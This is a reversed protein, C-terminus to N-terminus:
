VFPGSPERVFFVVIDLKIKWQNVLNNYIQTHAIRAYRPRLKGILALKGAHQRCRRRKSFVVYYKGPPDGTAQRRWSETVVCDVDRNNLRYIPTRVGRTGRVIGNSTRYTYHPCQLGSHWNWLGHDSRCHQTQKCDIGRKIKKHQRVIAPFNKDMLAFNLLFTLFFLILIKILLYICTIQL